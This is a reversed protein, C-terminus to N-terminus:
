TQVESLEDKWKSWDWSGLSFKPSEDLYDHTHIVLQDQELLVVCYAAQEHSGPIADTQNFNLAV